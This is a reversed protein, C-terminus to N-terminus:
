RRGEDLRRMGELLLSETSKEIARETPKVSLDLTFEGDVLLLMAYFGEEGEHSGFSANWIAGESFMILGKQGEARIELQGSKRGNSLIQVVDPLSMESLSGSVGRAAGRRAPSSLIQRMKAAVVDPSAPKVVFDAAGIEFGRDVTERDSRRTLFLIPLDRNIGRARKALEFGDFPALEVETLLADIGGQSLRSEADNASRAIVVEYGHEIMRLELVTTEEVDADVVLVTPRDKLLKAKLDDGLVVNKFLEVLSPDFFTNAYRDLVDCAEKAPLVKRYPNKAHTTLDTYTEVIALMRAGLPIDKGGLRDPFGNGDFREYLHRLANVAEEPLKVSELMRVPNLHTKQAQLRHGEYQAVNLPTLHYAGAKGVDHLYAAALVGHMQQETLGIRECLRKCLRAVQASHGRLENRGQELLAVMVNLVELMDKTSFTDATEQVGAKYDAPIDPAEITISVPRRRATQTPPPPPVAPPAPKPPPDRFASEVGPDPGLDLPIADKRNDPDYYAVGGSMQADAPAGIGSLLMAFAAMDGQYHKRILATVAAPRAVYATVTRVGSVLQVQKVVD